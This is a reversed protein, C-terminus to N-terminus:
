STGISNRCRPSVLAKPGALIFRLLVQAYLRFSLLLHLLRWIMFRRLTNTRGQLHYSVKEFLSLPLLIVLCIPFIIASRLAFGTFGTGWTEVVPGALDLIVCLFGILGGFQSIIIAIHAVQFAVSRDGCAEKVISEYTHEIPICTSLRVSKGCAKTLIKLAAFNLVGLMMTLILCLVCGTNLMASPMSLM